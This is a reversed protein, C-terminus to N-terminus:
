SILTPKGSAVRAGHRGMPERGAPSEQALSTELLGHFRRIKGRLRFVAVPYPLLEEFPVLSYAGLGDILILRFESGENRVLVNKLHLDHVVVHHSSFWRTFRDAASRLRARLEANNRISPAFNRLDPAVGGDANRILDQVLAPGRNTEVMGYMAPLHVSPDSISRSLRRYEVLELHNDDYSHIPRLRKYWSKRRRIEAPSRQPASVKLCRSPDDPHVFVLRRGGRSLLLEDPLALV